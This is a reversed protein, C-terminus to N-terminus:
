PWWSGRPDAPPEYGTAMSTRVGEGVGRPFRHRDRRPRGPPEPGTSTSCRTAPRPVIRRILGHRPSDEVTCTTATPPGVGSSRVMLSIITWRASRPTVVTRVVASARWSWCGKSTAPKRGTSCRARRWRIRSGAMGGAGARATWRTRRRPALCRASARATSPAANVPEVSMQRNSVEANASAQSAVSTFRRRSTRRWPRVAPKARVPRVALIPNTWRRATWGSWWRTPTPLARSASARVQSIRCPTRSTQTLVWGSM